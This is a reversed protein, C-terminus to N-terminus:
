GKALMREATREAVAAVTLAPNVGLAYPLSSADCVFLNKHGFVECHEDIVGHEPAEAMRCSSLLHASTMGALERKVGPLIKVGTKKGIDFVISELRDLYRDYASRDREVVATKGEELTIARHGDALGLSSFGIMRHPYVRRMFEKYPLGWSRAPVESDNPLFLDAAFLSPEMGGGPHLTFGDSEFYHYSMVGANEMGRYCAYRDLDDFEPPLIGLFAHEGNTNFNEGVHTSLKSLGAQSRLLLAPSHIGGGAVVVREARVEAPVGNRTYRVIYGAGDPTISEANCETRFEAGHSEALPIYSHVVPSKAVL